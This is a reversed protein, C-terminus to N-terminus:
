KWGTCGPHQFSPFSVEDVVCARALPVGNVMNTWYNGYDSLTNVGYYASDGNRNQVWFEAADGPYNGHVTAVTWNAHCWDSYRLSITIVAGGGDVPLMNGGINFSSVTFANSGACGINEPDKGNCSAGYCPPTPDAHAAPAVIASGATALAVAATTVLAQIHIRM